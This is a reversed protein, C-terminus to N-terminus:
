LRFANPLLVPPGSPLAGWGGPEWRAQYQREREQSVKRGASDAGATVLAEKKSQKTKEGWSCALGPLIYSQPSVTHTFSHSVLDEEQRGWSRGPHPTQSAEAGRTARIPTCRQRAEM